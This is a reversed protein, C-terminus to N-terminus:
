VFGQTQRLKVCKVLHLVQFSVDVSRLQPTPVTIAIGRVVVGIEGQVARPELVHGIHTLRLVKKHM